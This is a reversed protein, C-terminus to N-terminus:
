SGGAAVQKAAKTIARRIRSKVAKRNARWSVFFFPQAKTGPNLTGPFMGGNEHAATGFEVLHAYRVKSNGVFITITLDGAMKSKAVAVVQSYKPRKGWTWGISERLDGDDIPALSRMMDVIENAGQEMAAKITAKAVEPMRRLKRELKALGLITSRAM